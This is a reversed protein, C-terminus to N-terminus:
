PSEFQDTTGQNWIRIPVVTGRSWDDEYDWQRRALLGKRIWMKGKVDRPLTWINAKVHRQNFLGNVLAHFAVWDDWEMRSSIPKKEPGRFPNIVCPGPHNGCYAKKKTLAIKGLYLTPVQWGPVKAEYRERRTLNSTSTIVEGVRFRGDKAIRALLADRLNALRASDADLLQITYM